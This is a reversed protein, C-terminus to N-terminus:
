NCEGNLRISDFRTLDLLLISGNLTCGNPGDNIVLRFGDDALGKARAVNRAAILCHGLLAADDDTAKSVQNVRRKPIVLCHVPAM